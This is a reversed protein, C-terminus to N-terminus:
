ILPSRCDAAAAWNKCINPKYVPRSKYYESHSNHKSTVNDGKYIHSGPEAYSGNNQVQPHAPGMTESKEILLGYGQAVPAVATPFPIKWGDFWNQSSSWAHSLSERARAEQGIKTPGTVM